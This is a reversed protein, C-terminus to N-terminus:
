KEEPRYYKSMKLKHYFTFTRLIWLKTKYFVDKSVKRKARLFMYLAVQVLSEQRVIIECVTHTFVEAKEM